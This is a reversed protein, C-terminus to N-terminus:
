CIFTPSLYCQSGKNAHAMGPRRSILVICSPMKINVKVVAVVVVVPLVVLYVVVVVVIVVIKRGNYVVVQM